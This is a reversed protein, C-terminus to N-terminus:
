NNKKTATISDNVKKRAELKAKRDELIKKKKDELAKKRAEKETLKPAITKINDNETKAETTDTKGKSAELKAKRDALIKKKKDELAKKKADSPSLTTEEKKQTIVANNDEKKIDETKTEEKNNSIGKRANIKEERAKARDELIKKKKEELAKKKAERAELQKNRKDEITKAREAKKDALAKERAEQEKNIEPVLEEEEAVKREQRNQVQRRKSSRTISRLVQESIDFRDASYLMIGDASKDLVLDYKKNAAIEQVATFIQDQIPQMLNKKQIMLDGNPGFRKQQYDLIESEEINIEEQREEILEKTLLVSESNLQKKKQDINSLRLEIEAKWKQVKADLQQSAEQYEPVNQLIYETDIYGIRVGRQGFSTFSLLFAFALLFLVKTKM